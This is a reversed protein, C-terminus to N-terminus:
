WFNLSLFIICQLCSVVNYELKKRVNLLINDHDDDPNQQDLFLTDSLIDHIVGQTVTQFNSVFELCHMIMVFFLLLQLMKITLVLLLM